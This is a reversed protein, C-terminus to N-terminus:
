VVSKRDPLIITSFDVHSSVSHSNHLIVEGPREFIPAGKGLFQTAIYHGCPTHPEFAHNPHLPSYLFDPSIIEEMIDDDHYSIPHSTSSIGSSATFSGSEDDHSSLNVHADGCPTISSYASLPDVSRSGLTIASPLDLSVVPSSKSPINGSPRTSSSLYFITSSPETMKDDPPSINIPAIM